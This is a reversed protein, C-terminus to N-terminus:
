KMNVQANATELAKWEKGLISTGMQDSKSEMLLDEDTDRTFQQQQCIGKITKIKFINEKARM